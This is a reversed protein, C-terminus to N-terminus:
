DGVDFSSLRSSGSSQVEKGMTSVVGGLGRVEAKVNKSEGEMVAMGLEVEKLSLRVNDLAVKVRAGNLDTTTSHSHLPPLSRAPSTPNLLSSLHFPHHPSM